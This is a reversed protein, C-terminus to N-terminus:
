LAIKQHNKYININLKLDLDSFDERVYIRIWLVPQPQLMAVKQRIPDGGQYRNAILFHQNMKYQLM